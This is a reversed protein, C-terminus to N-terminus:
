INVIFVGKKKEYENLYIIRECKICRVVKESKKNKTYNITVIGTQKKKLEARSINDKICGFKTTKRILNDDQNKFFAVIDSILVNGSAYAMELIEFPIYIVVPVDEEPESGSMNFHYLDSPHKNLILLM